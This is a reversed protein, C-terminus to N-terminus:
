FVVRVITLMMMTAALLYAFNVAAAVLYLSIEMLLIRLFNVQFWETYGDLGRTRLAHHRYGKESLHPVVPCLASLLPCLAYPMPCLAYRVKKLVAIDFIKHMLIETLRMNMTPTIAKIKLDSEYTESLYYRRRRPTRSLGIKCMGQGQMAQRDHFIYVFGPVYHNQKKVTRNPKLIPKPKM